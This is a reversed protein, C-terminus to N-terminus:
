GDDLMTQAVPLGGLRVTATRHADLVGLRAGVPQDLTLALLDGVKRAEPLTAPTPGGIRGALTPFRM